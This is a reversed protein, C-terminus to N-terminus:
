RACALPRRNFVRNADGRWPAVTFTQEGGTYAFSATDAVAPSATGVLTVAAALSGGLVAALRRRTAM